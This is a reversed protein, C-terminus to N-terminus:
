RGTSTRQLEALRAEALEKVPPGDETLLSGSAAAAKLAAEADARNGLRAACLGLLYQVTGSGVGPGEAITVQQLEARADSWSELRTLAAALNLRIAAKEEADTADALRARLAVLTRNVLLTQDSIGLLRPRMAVRVDVKRATGTADKVEITLPEASTQASIAAALAAADAVPKGGASVLVEGAKLGATAAPGSADVAALVAGPVDEVDIATVGITPTRFSLGRDLQSIASAVTEQQDLNVELVDAEAAGAALLTLVLRSRDSAIPATVAAIGQADFTKALKASLDRRMAATVEATVGVPRRNVDYGLWDPPLKEAKLAADLQDGAPAFLLVSQLPEFAREAAARLDTNLSTQTSSVLAFAPRLAGSVDIKQGARADVKRVLRGTPSRLEITHPGECLETSYPTRGRSDGDVYVTVDAQPSQASMAAVAPDLKVPDLVFDDLQSIEQRRETQVFCARRFQIRHSGTGLDTLLLVGSLQNSAIGARTAREAFEAPPPGAATRGKSVGDVVVEVDAPSTVISLVASSRALALTAEATTEPAATFTISDEKYGTQSAQLTHEGVSVAMTAAAAVKVGDLLVTATAPTVNLTLQTITAKQVEEFLAVVRPSVQGTLTYTADTKLLMTLDQRAGDQDGIGFKSRARLELANAMQRRVDDGQRAQLLAVVRDLTPVAQEYELAEFQRRAEAFQVQVDADASQAATRVAVDSGVVLLGACLLSTLVHKM